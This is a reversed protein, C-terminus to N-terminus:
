SWLERAEDVLTLACTYDDRPEVSWVILRLIETGIQGTLALAQDPVDEAPVPTELELLDADGPGNLLTLPATPGDPGRLICAASAGLQLVDAVALMDAVDLVDPGGPLIVPSDLQLHTVDGAGDIVRGIVRASGGWASLMDHQVAVLDGRRAVIAEAPADISYYTGRAAPQSQDYIARATVEAETVLGDYSVQELLQPAGIFGPRAVTIQREEYDRDADRFSVRLGDPVRAFARDWRFNASNRPTFVQVPAEASRDYDRAVGYLDSMYPRAYGCGALLDAADAVSREEIIANCTHGAARWAVLGDDDIISPPVPSANMRGSYVDRLHPAPNDTVAWDRWGSGDWDQVWGGAVCSLDALQLNRARIAILAMDDSPVPHENWISVSRTLYIADYVGDRTMAIDGSGRYGWFDWVSGNYLYGAPAYDAVAFAAGRLVRVDYRGKPFSAPDLQITATYRDTAVHQVGTSGLNGAAMWADGGTGFYSDATWEASAPVETQGPTQRRAEVWGESTAAAPTVAEDTWVLRITARMQRVNAAQFHLEPLNIWEDDGALRIQLRVPVRLRATESANRNLGGPLVIQLQQEDPAERTTVILPQPLDDAPNGTLGALIAGDDADVVHARLETQLDQAKSQRRTLTLRADGPWGERIEYEVGLDAISAAGIRIDSLRHPGALAFVAEVMEDPGDFYILPEAALPPYIKREGVVRPISGNAQLVNGSAGANGPDAERDTRRAAPPASLASIALSGVLSVGLALARAGFTGKAFGAGLLKAASGAAIGGSFATLAISAILALIQKGGGEGSDGPPYHLTVEVPPRDKRARPRVHPWHRHPVPHGNICITGRQGFDEPLGPMLGAMQALSLGPPLQQVEPRYEFPPRWTLLITM